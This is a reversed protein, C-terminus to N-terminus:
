QAANSGAIEVHCQLGAPARGDHSDFCDSSDAAKRGVRGNNCAGFAGSRVRYMRDPGGCRRGAASGGTYGSAGDFLIMTVIGGGSTDFGPEIFVVAGVGEYHMQRVALELM